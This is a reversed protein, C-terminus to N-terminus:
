NWGLLRNRIVKMEEVSYKQENCLTRRFIRDSYLQLMEFSADDFASTRAFYNRSFDINHKQCIIQHAITYLFTGRVQLQNFEKEITEQIKEAREKMGHYQYYLLQWYLKNQILLAQFGISLMISEMTITAKESSSMSTGCVKEIIDILELVAVVDCYLEEVNTKDDSKLAIFMNIIDQKTELIDFAGVSKLMEQFGLLGNENEQLDNYRVHGIEHLITFINSFIELENLATNKGCLNLLSDYKGLPAGSDVYEQAFSLALSPIEEQLSAQSLIIISKMIYRLYECDINAEIRNVACLYALSYHAFLNGFHHDIIIYPEDKIKIRRPFIFTSYIEVFRSRYKGDIKQPIGEFIERLREYKPERLLTYRILYKDIEM